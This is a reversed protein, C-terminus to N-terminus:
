GPWDQSFYSLYQWSLFQSQVIVNEPTACCQSVFSLHFRASAKSVCPHVTSWPRVPPVSPRFCVCVGACICVCLECLQWETYTSMQLSFLAAPRPCHIVRKEIVNCTLGVSPCLFLPYVTFTPFVTLSSVATKDRLSICSQWNRMVSLFLRKGAETKKVKSFATNLWWVYRIM